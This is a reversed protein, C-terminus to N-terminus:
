EPTLKGNGLLVQGDDEQYEQVWRDLLNPNLM